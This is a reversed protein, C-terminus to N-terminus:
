QGPIFVGGCSGCRFAKRPRGGSTSSSALVKQKGGDTKFWLHQCSLGVVLFTLFSGRIQVDGAVMRENCKPCDMHDTVQNTEEIM